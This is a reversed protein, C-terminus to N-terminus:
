ETGCQQAIKGYYKKNHWARVYQPAIEIAKDFCRIADAYKGMKGLTIGKNNWARAYRPALSIARNYCALADEYQGISDFCVAKKEWTRADAPDAEIRADLRCLAERCRGSSDFIDGSGPSISMDRGPDSCEALTDSVPHFRNPAGFLSVEDFLVTDTRARLCLPRYEM